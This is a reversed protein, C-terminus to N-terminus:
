EHADGAGNRDIARQWNRRRLFPRCAWLTVIAADLTVILTLSWTTRGDLFLLVVATALCAAALVYLVVIAVRWRPYRSRLDMDRGRARCAWDVVAARLRPSGVAVGRAVAMEVERRESRDLAHERVMHRVLSRQEPGHLNAWFRLSGLWYAALLVGVAALLLAIWTARM